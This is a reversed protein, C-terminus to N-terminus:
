LRIESVFCEFLVSRGIEDGVAVAADDESLETAEPQCVDELSSVSSCSDLGEGEFVNGAEEGIERRRRSGGLRYM